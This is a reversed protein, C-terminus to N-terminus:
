AVAFICDPKKERIYILPAKILPPNLLAQLLSQFLCASSAVRQQHRVTAIWGCRAFLPTKEAAKAPFPLGSKVAEKLLRSTNHKMKGESLHTVM